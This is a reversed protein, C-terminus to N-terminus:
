WPYYAVFNVFSGIQFQITRRRTILKREPSAESPPPAGISTAWTLSARTAGAILRWTRTTPSLVRSDESLVHQQYFNSTTTLAKGKDNVKKASYIWGCEKCKKAMVKLKNKFQATPKNKKVIYNDNLEKGQMM